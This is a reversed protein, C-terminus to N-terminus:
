PLSDHSECRGQYRQAGTCITRDRRRSLADQAGSCSCPANQACVDGRIEEEIRERCERSHAVTTSAEGQALARCLTSAKERLYGFKDIIAKTIKLPDHVEVPDDLRLRAPCVDDIVKMVGSSAWLAGVIKDLFYM